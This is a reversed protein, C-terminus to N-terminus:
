EEVEEGHGAEVFDSWKVEDVPNCNEIYAEADELCDVGDVIIMGRRFVEVKFAAMSQNRWKGCISM